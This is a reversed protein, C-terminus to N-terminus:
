GYMHSKKYSLVGIIIYFIRKLARTWLFLSAYLLLTGSFVFTLIIAPFVTQGVEERGAYSIALDTFPTSSNELDSMKCKLNDIQAELQDKTKEFIRMQAKGPLTALLAYDKELCNSLVLGIVFVTVLLWNKTVATTSFNQSATSIVSDPYGSNAMVSVTCMDPMVYVVMSLMCLWLYIHGLTIIFNVSPMLCGAKGAVIQDQTFKRYLAFKLHNGLYYLGLVMFMFIILTATCSGTLVYILNASSFPLAFIWGFVWKHWFSDRPLINEVLIDECIYNFINGTNVQARVFWNRQAYEKGAKDIELGMSCIGDVYDARAKEQLNFYEEPRSMKLYKLSNGNCEAQLLRDNKIYSLLVINSSPSDGGFWSKVIQWWSMTSDLERSVNDLVDPAYDFLAETPVSDAMNVVFLYDPAKGLREEIEAMDYPTLVTSDGIFTVNKLVSEEPQSVPVSGGGAPTAEPATALSIDEGASEGQRVSDNSESRKGSRRVLVIYDASVYGADEGRYRVKAWGDEIDVVDLLTGNEVTGVIAGKKSPTARVNLYTNVEVRYRDYPSEEIEYCSHMILSLFVILFLATKKM